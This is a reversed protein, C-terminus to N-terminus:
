NIMNQPRPYKRMLKMWYQQKGVCKLFKKTYNHLMVPKKSVTRPPINVYSRTNVFHYINSIKDVLISMLMLKKKQFKISDKNQTVLINM